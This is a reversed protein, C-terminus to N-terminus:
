NVLARAIDDPWFSQADCHGVQSEMNARVPHRGIRLKAFQRAIADFEAGLFEFHFDAINVHNIGGNPMSVTLGNERFDLIPEVRKTSCRDHVAEHFTEVARNGPTGAELRTNTTKAIRSRRNVCAILCDPSDPHGRLRKGTMLCAIERDVGDAVAIEIGAEIEKRIDVRGFRRCHLAVGTLM